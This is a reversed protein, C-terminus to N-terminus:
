ECVALGLPGPRLCLRPARHIGPLRQGQHGQTLGTPGGAIQPTGRAGKTGDDIQEGRTGIQTPERRSTQRAQLLSGRQVEGDIRGPARDLLPGVLGAAMMQERGEEELRSTELLSERHQGL